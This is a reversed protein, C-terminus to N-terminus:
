YGWIRIFPNNQYSDIIKQIAISDATSTILPANISGDTGMSPDTGGGGGQIGSM